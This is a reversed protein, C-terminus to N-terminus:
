RGTPEAQGRRDRGPAFAPETGPREIGVRDRQLGVLATALAALLAGLFLYGYATLAQPLVVDGEPRSNSLLLVALLWPVAPVAAGARGRMLCAGGVFLGTCGALAIVLGVPLPVPGLHVVRAQVFSGAAGVLGGAVALVLYALGRGGRRLWRGPVRTDVARGVPQASASV